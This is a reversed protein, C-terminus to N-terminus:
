YSESVTERHRHKNHSAFRVQGELGLEINHQGSHCPPASRELHGHGPFAVPAPLPPEASGSTTAGSWLLLEQDLGSAVARALWVLIMIERSSKLGRDSRGSTAAWSWLLLEQDLGSAVARALWVLIMIERSSKLGRDSFIM